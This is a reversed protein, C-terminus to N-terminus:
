WSASSVNMRFGGDPAGGYFTLIGNNWSSISKVGNARQCTALLLLALLGLRLSACALSRMLHKPAM